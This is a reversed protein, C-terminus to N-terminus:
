TAASQATTATPAAGDAPPFALIYRYLQTYRWALKTNSTERFRELEEHVFTRARDYLGGAWDAGVSDAFSQGLYHVIATGDEDRILMSLCLQALARDNRAFVSKDENSAHARLYNMAHPGVVIRPYGAVESELEYARAVVAGTLEGDHLEVGWSVELSGRIPRKSALGFMILAGSLAILDFVENVHCKIKENGLSAFLLLGDSWRQTRVDTPFMLDWEAQQASPLSARLPSDLSRQLDHATQLMVSARDQLVYLAGVTKRVTAIFNAEDEPTAFKPVLSEKALADRQGLLDIFCACYNHIQIPGLDDAKTAAGSTAM